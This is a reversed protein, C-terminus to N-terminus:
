KKQDILTGVYLGVAVCLVFVPILIVGFIIAALLFGSDVGSPSFFKFLGWTILASLFPSIVAGVVACITKTISESQITM